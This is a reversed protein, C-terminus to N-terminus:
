VNGELEQIRKKLKENEARFYKESEKLNEIDIPFIVKTWFDEFFDLWGDVDCFAKGIAYILYFPVVILMMVIAILVLLINKIKKKM